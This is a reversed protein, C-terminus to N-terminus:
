ADRGKQILTRVAKVAKKADISVFGPILPVKVDISELLQSGSRASDHAGGSFEVVLVELESIIRNPKAGDAFMSRHWTMFREEPIGGRKAAVLTTLELAMIESVDASEINTNRYLLRLTATQALKAIWLMDPLRAETERVIQNVLSEPKAEILSFGLAHAHQRVQMVLNSANERLAGTNTAEFLL